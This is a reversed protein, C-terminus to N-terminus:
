WPVDACELSVVYCKGCCNSTISVRISRHYKRVQDYSVLKSFDALNQLIFLHRCCVSWAKHRASRRICIRLLICYGLWSYETLALSDSLSSQCRTGGQTCVRPGRAPRFIVEVGFIDSWRFFFLPLRVVCGFSFCPDNMYKQLSGKSLWEFFIQFTCSRARSRLPQPRCTLPVYIFSILSWCVCIYVFTRSVFVFVCCVFVCCVFVCVCCVVCVVCLCLVCVCCVVCLCLVCVCCMRVTSRIECGKAM